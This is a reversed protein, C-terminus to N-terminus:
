ADLSTTSSGAPVREEEFTDIDASEQLTLAIDDLGKLLRERVEASIEFTVERGDFAVTQRELDITAETAQM